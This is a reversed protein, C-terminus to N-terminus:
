EFFGIFEGSAKLLFGSGESRRVRIVDGFVEHKGTTVTGNKLIYGM